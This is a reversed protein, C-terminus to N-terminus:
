NSKNYKRDRPKLFQRETLNFWDILIIHAWFNM